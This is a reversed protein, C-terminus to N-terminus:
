NDTTDDRELARLEDVLYNVVVQVNDLTSFDTLLRIKLSFLNETPTHTETEVIGVPIGPPFVASYGSTVITDGKHFVTHRPLEELTAFRPDNGDWVLSGFNGNDRLRCSLRFHPNLLSIIRASNEGVVNVVGVVGRHDIVGMEPAIGDKSGKNITIYNHPQMVSNKIVHAVIFDYPHLAETLTLTDSILQERLMDVQAQLSAVDAQLEANRSNLAENSEKLNFYASIGGFTDYVTSSISNASTLYINQHLPSNSILLVVSAIFYIAFVFWKSHRIFFNILERM